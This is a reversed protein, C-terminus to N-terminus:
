KLKNAFYRFNLCMFKIFDVQSFITEAMLYEYRFPVPLGAMFSACEKRSVKCLHLPPFLQCVNLEFCKYFHPCISPVRILKSCVCSFLMYFFHIADLQCVIFLNKSNVYALM